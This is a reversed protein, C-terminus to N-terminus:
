INAVPTESMSEFTTDFWKKQLAYMSGDKRAGLLFDNFVKLLDTNGKQV